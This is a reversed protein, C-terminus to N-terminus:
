ALARGEGGEGERKGGGGEAREAISSLGLLRAFIALSKPASLSGRAFRQAATQPHHPGRASKSRHLLPASESGQLGRSAAREHM